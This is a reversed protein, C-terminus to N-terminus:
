LAAGCFRSRSVELNLCTWNLTVQGNSLLSSLFALSGQTAPGGNVQVYDIGMWNGGGDASYNIGRLSVINGFGPGTQANVSALSFQPTTYDTDFQAPRIVIEPQVLVGNFYVAIGYRADPNPTPLNNADFTVAWL